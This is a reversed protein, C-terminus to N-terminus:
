QLLVHFYVPVSTSAPELKDKIEKNWIYCVKRFAMESPIM